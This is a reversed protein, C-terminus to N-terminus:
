SAASFVMWAFLAFSGLLGVVTIIDESKEQLNFNLRM